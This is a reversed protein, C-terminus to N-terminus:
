STRDSKGGKRGATGSAGSPTPSRTTSSPSGAGGGSRGSGSSGAFESGPAGGFSGRPSPAGGGTSSGTTSGGGTSGSFSSGGGALEYDEAGQRSNANESWEGLQDSINSLQESIQSRRSWLFVSAGVAAAAAAATAIPRERATDRWGSSFQNYGEPNNNNSRRNGRNNRPM